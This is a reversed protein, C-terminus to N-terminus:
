ASTTVIKSRYRVTLFAQEDKTQMHFNHDFHISGLMWGFASATQEEINM